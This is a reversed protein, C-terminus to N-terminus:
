EGIKEQRRRGIMETCLYEGCLLTRGAEERFFQSRRLIVGSIMRGSLYEGAFREQLSELEGSPVSVGCTERYTVTERVIALPLRFEGPLTVYYEEYM